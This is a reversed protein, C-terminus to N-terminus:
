PSRPHPWAPRREVRRGSMGLVIEISNTSIVGHDPPRSCPRRSPSRRRRRCRRPPASAPPSSSGRPSRAPPPSARAPWCRTTCGTSTSRRRGGGFAAEAPVLAGLAAVGVAIGAQRFTDNVGAAVGSQDPSVTGLAVATLAPNFLGTGILAVMAGPLIVTWSSDVDALTFLVMGVAVLASGAPSWSGRPSGRRRALEDRRERVADHDHGAPLDPRGRDGVARPDAAPLADHLPLDRLVVGLHRVGRDARRHVLPRPVAGAPADARRRAGRDAVFAALLVLPAPSRPWSRARQDLRGRPRAAARARAPVARRDADGPRALRDRARGPDRSEQVYARTAAICFLGIPLNILFIWRWDLGSTLAGGVLPGVAFSAGITAGYAALAGARQRMDPYAAALLALSVAFMIAAGVGQVARM